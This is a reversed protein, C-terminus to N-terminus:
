DELREARMNYHEQRTPIRKPYKEPHCLQCAAKNCGNHTKRLRGPEALGHDPGYIHQREKQRRAIIHKETHYRRM